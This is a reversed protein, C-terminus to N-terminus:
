QKDPQIEIFLSSRAPIIVQHDISGNKFSVGRKKGTATIHYISGNKGMLEYQDLNLRLDAKFDTSGVNTLAIGLSERASLWVSSYVTPYSKEFHTVKEKQGAYISLKSIDMKQSPVDLRINPMMKGHLLYDTAQNRVKVLAYLYEMEKKRDKDLSPLYNSLMPQMGWVFSRGQEMLFQQNYKEDLLTLADSPKQAEPWKEDYPPKLLSSYNGYIVAYPHYVAQFLPIPTTAGTGAYREMSVQLALFADLYPLWAESVGEGSLTIKNKATANIRERIQVTLKGAGDAWYNGGGLKHGHSPDFCMRSLCAQDMYIGNVGYSNLVTDALSTYKDRWSNTALCMNTLSKGSFINYVHDTTSGDRNKAAHKLAGETEWSATSRGWQMQNMYVIANVKQSQAQRLDEMFRSKGDRPPIYEPFSDDYSSGHWWHWLVSVPLQVKKKIAVAPDLVEKTRGRNWVWLGTSKLWEPVLDNKLRSTKAWEQKTGWNRYIEAAKFWDGQFGGIVVQYPIAYTGLGFKFEPYNLVQFELGSKENLGLKFDKQFAKADDCALYIGSRGPQYLSIFQMSLHGPYVWRFAKEKMSQLVASPNEYLHGMWSPVSMLSQSTSQIGGIIPYALSEVAYDGLGSVQLNWYSLSDDAALSVTARVSIGSLNQVDSGSWILELQDNGIVRTDFKKLDEPTIKIKQELRTLLNVEWLGTALADTLITHDSKIMKTLNGNRGSFTLELFRSKLQVPNDSANARPAFATILLIFLFLARMM